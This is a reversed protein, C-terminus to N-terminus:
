TLDAEKANLEKKNPNRSYWHAGLKLMSRWRSKKIFTFDLQKKASVLFQKLMLERDPDKKGFGNSDTLNIVKGNKFLIKITIFSSSREDYNYSYFGLIDRKLYGTYEKDGDKVYMRKRDFYITVTKSFYNFLVTFILFFVGILLQMGGIGLYRYGKIAYLIVSPWTILVCIILVTLNSITLVKKFEFEPTCYKEM